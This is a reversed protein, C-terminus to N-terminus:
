EARMFAAEKVLVVLEDLTNALIKTTVWEDEGDRGGVEIMFGNDYLNITISDNVKTLKDAIKM